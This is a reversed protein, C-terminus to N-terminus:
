EVKCAAGNLTFGAPRDNVGSYSLNFGFTVTGGAPIVRTHAANQVTVATGTQTVVGSWWDTIKQNGGFRWELTWGEIASSGNNKITIGVTAGSGWDNVQYTVTCGGGPTATPTPTPSPTPTGSPTPSPSVPPRSPLMTATATPQPTATVTPSPTVGARPPEEGWLLVGNDYIPIYPTKGTFTTADYDPATSLGQFSWDDVYGALNNPYKITIVADKECAQWECPMIRTGTFDVTFYYINGSWQKLGSLTAGESKGLIVSVDNVTYGAALLKTLDMFYRASLKDKVTPPWSSRNNVQLLLNLAGYGEYTIWGRVFYETLNDQPARFDKPQPWNPLPEGGYMSYMKALAGVFGANYDCAVENLVYDTIDDKWGDKADPGGVLAGYLIHRHFAPTTLTSVWSGHATRHHPHEPAKLGFGVEYSGGRPNDGLIYNIQREAFERYGQKKSATGVSSDDAWVFALFAATSAYRLSGWQVLWALGGPTYTVGGNPLWWDLNSEVAKVYAENKTIQALKLTAGYKVDDWSQTHQGGLSTVPIYSKAKELYATDKTKLYLWVAAWTLDDLYSGSEYLSNLPYKGRYTDAFTFLQKAHTLTKEAYAPDTPEFIISAIALAAATQGAVDSGPTAPDVKFSKRKTIYALMEHPAWVSHDSECYGCDYYYVNPEPHAKIFYDTAWKIEDLIDNLQGAKEFADRYEYVAWGLQAASYAMPLGFKIGDGADAWGGTLDLGVDAGDTLAADGRWPLVYNDPLDGLRNAKYFLLSKQLAEGYKYYGDGCRPGSEARIIGPLYACAAALVTILGVVISVSKVKNGPIGNRSM